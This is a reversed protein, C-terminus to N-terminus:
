VRRLKHFVRGGAILVGRAAIIAQDLAWWRTRGPFFFFIVVPGRWKLSVVFRRSKMWRDAWKVGIGEPLCRESM